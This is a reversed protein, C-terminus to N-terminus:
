AAGGAARRRLWLWGVPGSLVYAVAVVFIVTATDILLAVFVALVLLLFWFPVREGPWGRFSFFRIRSVMLLACTVTVALAVWRLADGEFGLGTFFWVVAILTGASAPSALGIFWRKDTSGAQVNYRALRLAACAVYLFAAGWGVKAWVAGDLALQALAWHYMVLAPAVGFSLLDSLSDYQVGFESTTGTLRAVRGDLGDFVAAVLVAVCAAVFHGNAAALIAYFGAFMNATTLLNPLLYIHRSRPRPRAPELPQDDM